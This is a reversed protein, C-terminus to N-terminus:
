AARLKTQAALVDSRTLKVGLSMIFAAAFTVGCGGFLCLKMLEKTEESQLTLSGDFGTYALLAMSLTPAMLYGTKFASNYVGMFAGERRRQCQVEDVDCVDAVISLPLIEIATNGIPLALVHFLFYWYPEGPQFSFLAMLPVTLSLLLFVKLLRVKDISQGLRRILLNLLMSVGSGLLTALFILQAFGAKDGEYIIFTILYAAFSVAFYQGVGYFFVTGVLFMFPKNKFTIGLAQKMPLPKKRDVEVRERTGFTTIVGAVIIIMGVGCMVVAMGTVENPFLEPNTALLFPLTAVVTMPVGILHRWSVIRTRETYDKSLEAGLAYYPVVAITHTVYYLLKFILFYVFISVVTPMPDWFMVFTPMWAMPFIIGLSISGFLVWPRRKGMKSRTRDSWEGVLPDTVVDLLKVLPQGFAIWIPPIAFTTTYFLFMYKGIINKILYDAGNFVSYCIRESTSLPQEEESM